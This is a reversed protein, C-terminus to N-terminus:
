KEKRCYEYASTAAVAGLAAATIDQKFHGFTNLADGAVFVGPVNTSGMGDANMYGREDREIGLQEAFTPDPDFGIEIFLADTKLVDSGDVPRSLRLGELRSDGELGIVETEPFLKLKEGIQEMRARNVPEARVEKDRFIFSIRDAYEALFNVGKVSSDGGGVMAVAKGGYLPGDCTWCYHVGRGTLEEERPLGLHRRRAGIALIVSRASMKRDETEVSFGGDERSVRQAWGELFSAGTERAQEKMRKMLEYGQISPIGPYNEILGATATEGGFEGEIVITDLKYRQAYVAAALGAAGSGIIILDTSTKM